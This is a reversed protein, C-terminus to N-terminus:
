RWENDYKIHRIVIPVEWEKNHEKIIVSEGFDYVLRWDYVIEFHTNTISDMPFNYTYLRPNNKWSDKLTDYVDQPTPDGFSVRIQKEKLDINLSFKNNWGAVEVDDPTLMIIEKKLKEIENILDQRTPRNLWINIKDIIKLM